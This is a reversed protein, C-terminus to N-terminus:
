SSGQKLGINIVLDGNSYTPTGRTVVVCYIDKTASLAKIFLGQIKPNAVSANACNAYDGAVVRIHGKYSAALNADTMDFPANDASALTPRVDFFFLDFAQSQKGKDIISLSEIEVTGGTSPAANSVTNVAGVQDNAGFAAPGAAMVPTVTVVRRIVGM